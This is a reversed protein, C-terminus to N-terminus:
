SLHTYKEKILTGSFQDKYNKLENKKLFIKIKIGSGFNKILVNILWQLLVEKIDM